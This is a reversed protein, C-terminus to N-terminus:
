KISGVMLGQRFYRQAFPYFLLIPVIALVMMASSINQYTVLHGDFNLTELETTNGGSQIVLNYLLLQIPQLAKDQLYILPTLVSNWISAAYFVGITALVPTALPGYIRVMIQLDNAGDLSASEELEDPLSQLFSRTIILLFTNIAMPVIMVLRSNVMGLHQYIIYTPVLGAEFIWSILFLLMITHRGRFRKRSLVYATAYTLCVAVVTGVVTYFVSNLLSPLIGLSSNGLIYRYTATTIGKPLLHVQDASVFRGDSFSVSITYIFPYVCLAAIVLLIAGNVFGFARGRRRKFILRM